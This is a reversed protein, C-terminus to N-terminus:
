QSFSIVASIPYHDSIYREGDREQHTTYHSSSLGQSIFIYDIRNHNSTHGFGNFTAAPQHGGVLATDVWALGKHNVLTAYAPDSDLTNLDGMLIVPYDAAITPIYRQLFEASKQRALDSVHSFHANFVFFVKNNHRLKAWSVIRPLKALWGISGAVDPTESLWFYGSDLMTLTKSNYLLPVFEGGRKGDDRGVGIAVYDPLNEVLWDLQHALVEQMGVVDFQNQQLHKLVWQQRHPWANIGDNPNDFRLNFSEVKLQQVNDTPENGNGNGGAQVNHSLLMFVGSLILLLRM